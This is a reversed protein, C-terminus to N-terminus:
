PWIGCGTPMHVSDMIFLGGNFSSQTFIRVSQRNGSVSGTTEVRMVANGQDNVEVLGSSWKLNVNLISNKSM